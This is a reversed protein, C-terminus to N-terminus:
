PESDGPRGTRVGLAARAVLAFWVCHALIELRNPWGVPVDPGFAGGSGSLMVGLAVMTAVSAAVAAIGSAVIGRRVGAWAPGRALKWTVLAAALPMAMGLGGGLNHLSGSTTAADPAATIPDTTFIGALALGAASVWLSGSAALGAVGRLEPRLALALAAHAIALALFAVAMLWGHTGIAYESIFRWSPDLEPKLLHLLALLAVFSIAGALAIRSAAAARPAVDGKSTAATLATV